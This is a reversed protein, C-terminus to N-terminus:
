ILCHLVLLNHLIHLHRATSFQLLSRWLPCVFHPSMTPLLEYEQFMQLDVLQLYQGTKRLNVIRRLIQETINQSTSWQWRVLLMLDYVFDLKTTAIKGATAGISKQSLASPM